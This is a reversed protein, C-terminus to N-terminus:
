PLVVFGLAIMLGLFIFLLSVLVTLADFPYKALDKLTYRNKKDAAKWSKHLIPLAGIGMMSVGPHQGFFAAAASLIEGINM